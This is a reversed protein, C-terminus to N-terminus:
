APQRSLPRADVELIKRKLSQLYAGDRAATQWPDHRRGHDAHEVSLCVSRGLQRVLERVVPEWDFAGEELFTLDGIGLAETWNHIHIHSTFRGLEALSTQWPENRLPLQLNTTLNPREVGTLLRLASPSDEMLSGEHCELCLEIGHAAAQDCFSKLGEIADHWQEATAEDKGVVGEGWPPGTFVRLRQCGLVNAAAIFKEFQHQSPALRAPGHVFDFYPCLQACRMGNASLAAAWRATGFEDLPAPWLEVGDFGCDRLRPLTAEPSESGFCWCFALEIAHSEIAAASTM